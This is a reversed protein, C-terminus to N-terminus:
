STGGAPQASDGPQICCPCRGEPEPPNYYAYPGPGNPCDDPHARCPPAAQGAAHQPDIATQWEHRDAPTLSGRGITAATLALTAHVQAIAACSGATEADSRADPHKAKFLWTGAHGFHEPGTV